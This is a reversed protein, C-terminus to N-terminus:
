ERPRVVVLTDHAALIEGDLERIARSVGAHNGDHFAILGGPALMPRVRAVDDRVATYHHAGDIFALDFPLPDGFQDLTGIFITPCVGYRFCNNTFEGLTDMPNPTARGDHPDVSVVERATQAMCITSLGCYSGVELVRKGRALEALAEGEIPTMWGRVDYPFRWAPKM